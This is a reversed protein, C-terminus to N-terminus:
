GARAAAADFPRLRRGHLDEDDLPRTLLHFVQEMFPRGHVPDDGEIYGRLVAPPQNFVPTPIFAQRARPMGNVKVVSGVIREFVNVHVAVTPVRYRTELEIM